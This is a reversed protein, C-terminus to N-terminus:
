KLQFDEGFVFLAEVWIRTFIVESWREYVNPIVFEFADDKEVATHLRNLAVLLRHFHVMNKITFYPNKTYQNGHKRDRGHNNTTVM